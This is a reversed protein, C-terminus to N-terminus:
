KVDHENPGRFNHIMQCLVNGKEIYCSTYILFHRLIWVNGEIVYLQYVILNFKALSMPLWLGCTSRVSNESTNSEQM